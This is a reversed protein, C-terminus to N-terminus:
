NYNSLNHILVNYIPINLL